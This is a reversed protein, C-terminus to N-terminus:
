SSPAPKPASEATCPLPALRWLVARNSALVRTATPSRRSWRRRGEAQRGGLAAGQRLAARLRADRRRAPRRRAGARVAGGRGARPALQRARRGEGRELRRDGAGTRRAPRAASHRLFVRRRLRDARGARAARAARARARHQRPRLADGGLRRRGPLGRRRRRRQRRRPPASGRPREAVGRAGARRDPLRASLAGADRLRGAEVRAALLLRPREGAVGVDAPALGRPRHRRRARRALPQARALAVLAADAAAGRGPLVVVAPRQQLRERHLARLPSLHLLLARVRPIAAARRHVVARRDARVRGPRAALRPSPDDAGPGLRRALRRGGPRAPRSRDAGERSRRAGRVGLRPRPGQPAAPRPALRARCRRRLRDGPRHVRRGAHRPQRIARRRLLVADDRARALRRRRGARRRPAPDRRLLRLGGPLGRPAARLRAAAANAGFVQM